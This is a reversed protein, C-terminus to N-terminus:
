SVDSYDKVFLTATYRRINKLECKHPSHVKDSPFLIARNPRFGVHIDLEEETYFVTGTTVGIPGELMILINIVAHDSDIHPKFHDLNRLDIGCDSYIKKIKIKFKKESQKIFTNLLTEDEELIFRQGYFNEKTKPKEDDFYRPTFHIKTKIYDMVKTHDEEDFFNDIIKIM